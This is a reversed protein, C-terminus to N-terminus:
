PCVGDQGSASDGSFPVHRDFRQDRAVAKRRDEEAGRGLLVARQDQGPDRGVEAQEAQGGRQGGTSEAAEHRVDGQEGDPTLTGGRDPPAEQVLARAPHHLAETIATAVPLDGHGAENVAGPDDGHEEPAHPTQPEPAENPDVERAAHHPGHGDAPDSEHRALSGRRQESPHPPDPEPQEPRENQRGHHQQRRMEEEPPAPPPREARAAPAGRANMYFSADSPPADLTSSEGSSPWRAPRASDRAAGRREEAGRIRRAPRPVPPWRGSPGSWGRLTRDPRRRAARTRSAEPGRTRSAGCGRTPPAAAM